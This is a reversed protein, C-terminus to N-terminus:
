EATSIIGRRKLAAEASLVTFINETIAPEITQLTALSLDQLACGQEEALKVIRGTIHHAERFPKGLNQVLWDALETATAYGSEAVEAMRSKNVSMTALMGSTAEL